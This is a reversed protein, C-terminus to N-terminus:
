RPSTTPILSKILCHHCASPVDFCLSLLAVQSSTKELRFKSTPVATATRAAPPRAKKVSAELAGMLDVVQEAPAAPEPAEPLAHGERKATIVQELADTSDRTMHDILAQASKIDEESVDVAGPALEQPSRIEDPWRM